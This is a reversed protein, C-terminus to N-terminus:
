GHAAQVMQRARDPDVPNKWQGDAKIWSGVIAADAHRFLEKITEPTVGSGILIPLSCGQRAAAVDNPQTPHGTAQGTVIVGDAGFFEAGEAIVGLSLDSTIAHSAHKKRIDCYVPIQEAGISRRYRLLAGAEARALLGEDAVQAFVFNECRVFAGGSVRACALAHRNGGSLVQVGVHLNIASRVAALARSMVAVVEPGLEDGHVYPADHMNELIIADFGAQELRRAEDVAMEIIRDPESGAAPSGPSPDLHVMGIIKKPGGAQLDWSTRPAQTM